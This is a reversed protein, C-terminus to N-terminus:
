KDDCISDKYHRKADQYKRESVSSDVEKEWKWKEMKGSKWKEVKGRNRGRERRKEENSEDRRRDVNKETIYTPEYQWALVFQYRPVCYNRDLVTM